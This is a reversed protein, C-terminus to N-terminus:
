LYSLNTFVNTLFHFGSTLLLTAGTCYFSLHLNLIVLFQKITNTQLSVVILHKRRPANVGSLFSM